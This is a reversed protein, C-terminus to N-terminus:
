AHGPYPDDPDDKVFLPPGQILGLNVLAELLTQSDFPKTLYVHAGDEFQAEIVHSPDDLSSIMIIKPHRAPEIDYKVLYDALKKLAAHGDMEPMVIDMVVLDFPNDGIAQHFRKLGKRGNEAEVITGFESLVAAAKARAADSDDVILINLM